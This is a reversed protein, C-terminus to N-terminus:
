IDSFLLNHVKLGYFKVVVSVMLIQRATVDVARGLFQGGLVYRYAFVYHNKFISNGRISISSDRFAFHLGLVNSNFTGNYPHGVVGSTDHYALQSMLGIHRYGLLIYQNWAYCKTRTVYCSGKM